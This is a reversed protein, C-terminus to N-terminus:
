NSHWLPIREAAANSSRTRRSAASSLWAGRYQIDSQSAQRNSLVDDDSLVRNVNVYAIASVTPKITKAANASVAISAVRFLARSVRSEATALANALEAVLPLPLIANFWAVFCRKSWARPTCCFPAIIRILPEIAICLAATGEETLRRAATAFERFKLKEVAPPAPEGSRTTVIGSKRPLERM